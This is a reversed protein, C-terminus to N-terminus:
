YRRQYKGRELDKLIDHVFMMCQLDQSCHQMALSEHEELKPKKRWEECRRQSVHIKEQLYLHSWLVEKATLCIAIREKVEGRADDVISKREHRREIEGPENSSHFIGGRLFREDVCGVLLDAYEDVGWPDDPDRIRNVPLM